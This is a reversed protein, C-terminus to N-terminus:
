QEVVEAPVLIRGCHECVIVKRRTDIDLQRQPPIKNFCGGCSDRDVGVVALGNKANTRLRDYAAILRTDILAKAKESQAILAEEEKQTEGVIENLEDQKVKLDGKRLELREKAEDLVEKKATIKIKAEKMRKDHLKIELEQYEIEKALSEFERNNRVNNQQDKFKVIAAEADKIAMKRDSVETDLEKAEDQLNKIRTELGEIEDELDQVELPLEGRVTRIKDIQSDIKQLAYLADLKEAVTTEKTSAKAAM